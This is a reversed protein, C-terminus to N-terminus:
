KEVITALTNGIKLLESLTEGFFSAQKDADTKDYNLIAQAEDETLKIGNSLAYYLSREGVKMSVLDNNFEYNIGKKIKWDETAAIFLKAKGIQHLCCVKIVSNKDVKKGEPLLENVGLAYKTVKLMHDILGGEFNNTFNSSTSLPAGILDQGILDILEQNLYGYKLGREFYGTANEKVKEPSIM